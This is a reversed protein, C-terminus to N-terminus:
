LTSRIPSVGSISISNIGLVSVGTPSPSGAVVATAGAIPFAIKAAVPARTRCRGMRESATNAASDGRYDVMIMALILVKGSRMGKLDPLTEASASHLRRAEGLLYECLEHSARRRAAGADLNHKCTSDQIRAFRSLPIPPIM